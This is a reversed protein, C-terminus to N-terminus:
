AANFKTFCVFVFVLVVIQLRSREYMLCRLFLLLVSKQQIEVAVMASYRIIYVNKLTM